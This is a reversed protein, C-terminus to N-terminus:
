EITDLFFQLSFVVFPIREECNLTRDRGSEGYWQYEWHSNWRLWIEPDPEEIALFFFFFFM